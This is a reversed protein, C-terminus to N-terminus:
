STSWVVHTASSVKLEMDVAKSWGTTEEVAEEEEVDKVGFAERRSQWGSKSKSEQKFSRPDELKWIGVSRERRCVLLRAEGSVAFPKSRQPVYAARRHITTEFETSPVDSVPNQLQPQSRASSLSRTPAPSAAVIILNLDLGGSTLIPVQPAATPTLPSPVPLPLTYPPSMIMARVDHSHLRRGSAQIWRGTPVGHARSSSVTVLRFESTKQDM